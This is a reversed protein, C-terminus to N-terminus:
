MFGLGERSRKRQPLNRSCFLNAGLVVLGHEEDDAVEFRQATSLAITSKGSGAPGFLWFVDPSTPETTRAWSNIARQISVRTNPTCPTRFLAEQQDNRPQYLHDAEYTPNLRDM